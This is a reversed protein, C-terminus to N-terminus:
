HKNIKQLDITVIDTDWKEPDANVLYKYKLTLINNETKPEEFLFEPFMQNSEMVTKRLRGQPILYNFKTKTDINYYTITDLSDSSLYLIYNGSDMDSSHIITGLEELVEGNNKNILEFNAPFGGGSAQKNIFLLSEDYEKVFIYGIRGTLDIMGEPLSYMIKKIGNNEFTLWSSDCNFQWYLDAGNKFHTTDCVVFNDLFSNTKCSCNKMTSRKSTQSVSDFSFM